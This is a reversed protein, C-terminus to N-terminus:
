PAKSLNSGGSKGPLVEPTDIRDKEILVRISAPSPGDIRFLQCGRYRDECPGVFLWSDLVGEVKDPSCVGDHTIVIIKGAELYEQVVKRSAGWQRNGDEARAKDQLQGMLVIAAKMDRDPYIVM